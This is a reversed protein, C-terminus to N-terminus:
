LVASALAMVGGLLLGLWMFFTAAFDPPVSGRKTAPSMTKKFDVPLRSHSNTCNISECYASMGAPESGTPDGHVWGIRATRTEGNQEANGRKSNDVVISLHRRVGRNRVRVGATDDDRSAQVVRSDGVGADSSGRVCAVMQSNQRTKRLSRDDMEVGISRRNSGTGSTPMQGDGASRQSSRLRARRSFRSHQDM